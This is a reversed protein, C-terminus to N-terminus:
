VSIERRVRLNGIGPQRSGPPGPPLVEVQVDVQRSRSPTGEFANQQVQAAGDIMYRHRSSDTLPDAAAQPGAAARAVSGPTMGSAGAGRYPSSAAAHGNQTLRAVEAAEMAASAQSALM